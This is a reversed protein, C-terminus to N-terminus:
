AYTHGLAKTKQWKGFIKGVLKYDASLHDRLGHDFYKEKIAWLIERFFEKRPGGCDNAKQFLFTLCYYGLIITHHSSLKGM